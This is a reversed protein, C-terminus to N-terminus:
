SPRPPGLHEAPSAGVAIAGQALAVAVAQTRTEAGLKRM